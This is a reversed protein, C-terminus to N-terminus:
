FTVRVKASFVRHGVKYGVYGFPNVTDNLNVIPNGPAYTRQDYSTPATGSPTPHNVINAVDVRFNLSIGEKITTDKSLAMDLSWRGQSTLTYPQLTGAVGPAAHQMIIQSPDSALALAKLGSQCVARLSLGGSVSGASVGACQPDNVTTYQDYGYYRGGRATPDWTVHGAKVDFLSPNVLDIGSGGWMSNTQSISM